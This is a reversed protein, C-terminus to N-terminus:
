AVDSAAPIPIAFVARDHSGTPMLRLLSARDDLAPWLAVTGSGTDISGSWNSTAGLYANGLNDEAWWSLPPTSAATVMPRVNVDPSTEVTLTADGHLVSVAVIVITVDSLEVLTGVPVTLSRTAQRGAGAVLSRWPEPLIAPSQGGSFAELVMAVQAIVPDDADIAGAAVLADVAADIQPEGGAGHPGHRGSTLQSWLHREAVSTEALPEVAVEPADVDDCLEIRDSGVGIWRTSRSLPTRTTWEGRIGDIDFSGSFEGSATLGTDDSLAVAPPQGGQAAMTVDPGTISVSTADEALAVYHVTVEGWPPCPVVTEVPVVRPPTLQRRTPTRQAIRGLMGLPVSNQQHQRLTSAALYEEVVSRARELPIAGVAVLAAAREALPSNWPGRWGTRAPDLLEREGALRLYLEADFGPTM